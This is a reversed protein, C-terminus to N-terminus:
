AGRRVVGEQGGGKGVALASWVGSGGLVFLGKVGDGCKPGVPFNGAPKKGRVTGMGAKMEQLGRQRM